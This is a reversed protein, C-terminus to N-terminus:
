RMKLIVKIGGEGKTSILFRTVNGSEAMASIWLEVQEIKYTKLADVIKKLSVVLYNINKEIKASDKISKLTEVVPLEDSEGGKSFISVPKGDKEAIVYSDSPVDDSTLAEVATKDLGQTSFILVTKGQESMATKQEEAFSIGSFVQILSLVIVVPFVLAILVQKFM